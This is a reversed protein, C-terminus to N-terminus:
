HETDADSQWAYCLNGGLVSLLVGLFTAFPMGVLSVVVAIIGAVGLPGALAPKALAFIGCLFAAVAAVLAITSLGIPSLLPRPSSVLVAAIIIGGLALLVGGFFPRVARWEGFPIEYTSMWPLFSDDTAESTNEGDDASEDSSADTTSM